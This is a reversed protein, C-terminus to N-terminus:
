KGARSPQDLPLTARLSSMLQSAMIVGAPSMNVGGARLVRATWTNCNNFLHFRGHARYFNSNPRPGRAFIDSRKEEGRDFYGAVARVMHRFAQRPMPVSVIDAGDYVGKPPRAYGAMYMVAPTPRLAADLTMGLTPEPTPYYARDGWGFEIFAANPFDDAEPVLGTEVLAIRRVVIAAHWGNSVVRVADISRGQSSPPLPAMPACSVLLILCHLCAWTTTAVKMAM